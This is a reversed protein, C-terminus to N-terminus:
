VAFALWRAAVSYTNSSNSCLRVKFGTNTVSGNVVMASLLAIYRDTTEAAKDLCVMVVPTVGTDFATPFTVTVEAYNQKISVSDTIGGQMGGNVGGLAYIKDHAYLPWHVDVRHEDKMTEDSVSSYGGIGVGNNYKSIHLPVATKAVSRAVYGSTEEDAIFVLWMYWDSGPSYTGNLRFSGESSLLTAIKSSLDLYNTGMTTSTGYYLYLKRKDTACTTDTMGLKITAWVTEASTDASAGDDSRMIEFKSIVPKYNTPPVDQGTITITDDYQGSRFDAEYASKNDTLNWTIVLTGASWAAILENSQAVTFGSFTTTAYNDASPGTGYCKCTVPDATMWVTGDIVLQATVTVIASQSKGGSSCWVGDTRSISTVTKYKTADYPLIENINRSQANKKSTGSPTASITYEAM